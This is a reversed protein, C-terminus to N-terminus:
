LYIWKTCTATHKHAKQYTSQRSGAGQFMKGNMRIEHWKWNIEIFSSSCGIRFSCVGFALATLNFQKRPKNENWQTNTDILNPLTIIYRNPNHRTGIKPWQEDPHSYWIVRCFPSLHVLISHSPAFSFLATNVSNESTHNVHLWPSNIMPCVHNSELVVCFTWFSSYRTSLLNMSICPFILLIMAFYLAFM